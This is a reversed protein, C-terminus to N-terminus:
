SSFLEYEYIYFIFIFFPKGSGGYRSLVHEIFCFISARLSLVCSFIKPVLCGKLCSNPKVFTMSPNHEVV